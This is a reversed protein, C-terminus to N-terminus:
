KQTKDIHGVENIEVAKKGEFVIEVINPMWDMMRIFEDYGYAPSLYDLITSFATGHTGLVINHGNYKDLVDMLAEINRKKVDQIFEGWDNEWETAKWREPHSRLGQGKVGAERERFREDTQISIELADTLRKITDISRKYPSSIAVDIGKNKLMEYVFRTDELGQATLPRNRDDIVTKDPEAHRVFYIKTM